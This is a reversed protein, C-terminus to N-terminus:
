KDYKLNYSSLVAMVFFAVAWGTKDLSIMWAAMLYLIVALINAHLYNKIQPDM